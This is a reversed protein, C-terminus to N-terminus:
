DASKILEWGTRMFEIPVEVERGSAYRILVREGDTNLIVIWVAPDITSRYLEDPRPDPNPIM